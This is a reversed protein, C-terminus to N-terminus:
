PLAGVRRKADDSVYTQTYLRFQGAGLIDDSTAQGSVPDVAATLGMTHAILQILFTVGYGQQPAALLERGIGVVPMGQTFPVFEVYGEAQARIDDALVRVGYHSGEYVLLAVELIGSPPSVSAHLGSIAYLKGPLAYDPATAGPEFIHKPLQSIVPEPAIDYQFRFPQGFQFEFFKQAASLSSELLAHWSPDLHDQADASVVYAARIRVTMMPVEPHDAYHLIRPSPLTASPARTYARLLVLYVGASVFAVAVLSALIIARVRIRM